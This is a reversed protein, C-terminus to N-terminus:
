LYLNEFSVEIEHVFEGKKLDGFREVLDILNLTLERPPEDEFQGDTWDKNDVTYTIKIKKM